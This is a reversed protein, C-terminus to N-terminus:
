NLNLKSAHVGQLLLALVMGHGFSHNLDRVCDAPSRDLAQWDYGDFDYLALDHGQKVLRRLSQYGRQQSVLREYLRAYIQQRAEIANLLKGDWYWWAVRSGKPFARRVLKKNSKFNPHRHDFKPNNFAEDRWRFWEDTPTPNGREDTTLFRDRVDVLNGTDDIVHSYIKSYQWAVELNVSTVPRGNEEYCRVPGLRMPSLQAFVPDASKSTVNVRIPESGTLQQRHSQWQGIDSWYCTKGAAVHKRNKGYLRIQNKGNSTKM